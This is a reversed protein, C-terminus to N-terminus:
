KEWRVLTLSQKNIIRANRLAVNSQVYYQKGDLQVTDDLTMIHPYDYVDLTVTERISRNLWQVDATLDELKEDGCVPFSPDILPNGELTGGRRVLAKWINSIYVNERREAWQSPKDDGMSKGIAGGIDAGDSDYAAIHEQGNGLPTHEITKESLL